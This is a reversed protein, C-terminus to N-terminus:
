GFRDTKETRKTDFGCNKSCSLALTLWHSGCSMRDCHIDIIIHFPKSPACILFGLNKKLPSIGLGSLRWLVVNASVTFCRSGLSCELSANWARALHLSKSGVGGEKRGLLTDRPGHVTTRDSCVM